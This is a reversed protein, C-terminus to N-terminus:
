LFLAASVHFIEALQRAANKSIARKGRLVESATGKSGFMLYLDKPAM